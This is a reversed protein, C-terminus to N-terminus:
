DRHVKQTTESEWKFDFRLGKERSYSLSGTRKYRRNTVSKTKLTLLEIMARVVNLGDPIMAVLWAYGKLM